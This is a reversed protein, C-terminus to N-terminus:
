VGWRDLDRREIAAAMLDPFRDPTCAFAPIAFGALATAINQDFAPAGKDSLALLTITQVGATSLACSATLSEFMQRTEEGLRQSDATDVQGPSLVNM